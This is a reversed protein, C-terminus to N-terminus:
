WITKTIVKDSGDDNAGRITYTEVSKPRLTKVVYQYNKTGDVFGCKEEDLQILGKEKLSHIIAGLRISIKNNMVYFNDIKGDRRLIELVIDSQTKRKM